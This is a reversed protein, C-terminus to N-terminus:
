TAPFFCRQQTQVDIPTTYLQQASVERHHAHLLLAANGPRPGLGPRAARMPRSINLMFFSINIVATPTMSAAAEPQRNHSQHRRPADARVTVMGGGM